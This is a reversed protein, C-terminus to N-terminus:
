SIVRAHAAEDVQGHRHVLVGEARGGGVHLELHRRVPAPGTEPLHRAHVLAQVGAGVDVRRQVHELVPDGGRLDREVLDHALRQHDIEREDPGVVLDGDVVELFPPAPSTLRPSM